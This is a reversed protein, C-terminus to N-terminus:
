QTLFMELQKVLESAEQPSNTRTQLLQALQNLREIKEQDEPELITEGFGDLRAQEQANDQIRRLSEEILELSPLLGHLEELREVPNAPDVTSYVLEALVKEEAEKRIMNLHAVQELYGLDPPLDRELQNSIQEIQTAASEGLEQFYAEPNELQSLRIPAHRAWYQRALHAYHNMQKGKVPTSISVPNSKVLSSLDPAEDLPKLGRMSMPNQQAGYIWRRSIGNRDIRWRLAGKHEVVPSGVSARARPHSCWWFCSNM